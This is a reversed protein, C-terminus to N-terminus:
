IQDSKFTSAPAPFLNIYKSDRFWVATRYVDIKEKMSEVTWVRKKYIETADDRRGKM